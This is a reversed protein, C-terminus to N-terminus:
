RQTTSQTTPRSPATKTAKGAPPRFANDFLSLIGQNAPTQPRTGVVRRTQPSARKATATTRKKTAAPEAKAPAKVKPEARPEPKKVPVAVTAPSAPAPTEAKPETRAVEPGSPKEAMAPSVEPRNAQTPAPEAHVAEPQAAPAGDVPSAASANPEETAAGSEDHGEDGLSKSEVPQPSPTPVAEAEPTLAKVETPASSEPSVQQPTDDPAEEVPSAELKAPEVTRDPAEAPALEVPSPHAVAPALASDPKVPEPAAEVDPVSPAVEIPAPEHAPAEKTVPLASTTAPDAEPKVAAKPASPVVEVAIPQPANGGPGPLTILMPLMVAVCLGHVAGAGLVCLPLTISRRDTLPRLKLPAAASEGGFM